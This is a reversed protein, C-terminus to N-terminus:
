HSNQLTSCANARGGLAVWNPAVPPDVPTNINTESLSITSAAAPAPATQFFTVIGNVFDVQGPTATTLATTNPLFHLEEWLPYTGNASNLKGPAVGSIKLFYTSPQAAVFSATDDYSSYGITGANANVCTLEKGTSSNFLPTTGSAAAVVTTFATSGRGCGTHLFYTAVTVHSGSGIDRRCIGIAGTIGTGKLSPVQSWDTYFHSFIGGIDAASLSQDAIPPTASTFGPSKNVIVGFIQGVTVADSSSETTVEAATLVPGAVKVATPWQAASTYNAADVDQVGLLVTDLAVAGTATTQGDVTAAPVISYTGTLTGYTYASADNTVAPVGPNVAGATSTFDARIIQTNRLAGILGWVSGGDSRYYILVNKGALNTPSFGSDLVSGDAGGKFTCTFARLDGDGSVKYFSLSDTGGSGVGSTYVGGVNRDCLQQDLELIIMDRAASSGAINVTVNIQAPTLPTWTGPAALAPSTALVAAVAAAVQTNIRM